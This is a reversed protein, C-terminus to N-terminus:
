TLIRISSSIATNMWWIFSDQQASVMLDRSVRLLEELDMSLGLVGQM